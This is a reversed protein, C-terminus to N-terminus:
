NIIIRNELIVNICVYGNVSINDKTAMFEKRIADKECFDIPMLKWGTVNINDYGAKQLEQVVMSDSLIFHRYISSTAAVIFIVILILQFWSNIRKKNIM